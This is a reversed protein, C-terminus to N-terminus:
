FGLYWLFSFDQCGAHINLVRLCNLYVSLVSNRKSHKYLQVTLGFMNKNKLSIIFVPYVAQFHLTARLIGFCWRINSEYCFNAHVSYIVGIPHHTLVTKLNHKVFKYLTYHVRLYGLLEAGEQGDPLLLM